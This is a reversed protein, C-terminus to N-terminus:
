SWEKEREFERLVKTIKFSKQDLKYALYKNLIKKHSEEEIKGLINEDIFKNSLIEYLIKKQNKPIFDLKIQNKFLVVTKKYLQIVELSSIIDEFYEGLNYIKLYEEIEFELEDEYLDSFKDSSNNKLFYQVFVFIVEDISIKIDRKCSNTDLKVSLESFISKYDTIGLKEIWTELEKYKLGTGDFYENIGRGIFFKDTINFDLLYKNLVKLEEDSLLETISKNLIMNEFSSNKVFNNLTEVKQNKMNNLYILRKIKKGKGLAEKYETILSNMASKFKTSDFNNNKNPKEQTKVQILDLTQDRYMIEIDETNAEMDLKEIIKYNGNEFLPILAFRNQYVFGAVTPTAQKRKIM